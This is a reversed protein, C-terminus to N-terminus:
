TSTWRRARGRRVPGGIGGHEAAFREARAADLDCAVVEAGAAALARRALLRGQRARDRGRAARVRRGLRHRRAPRLPDRPLGDRRHRPLPRRRWRAGGLARGRLAHPAVDPGHRRHHHRHGRRDRLRRRARRDRRRGRDAPRRAARARRRRDARGQRRRADARRGVGQADDHAGPGDRRGAGRHPRGSLAQAAARRPGARAGDLARRRHLADRHCRDQRIVIREHDDDALALSSRVPPRASITM